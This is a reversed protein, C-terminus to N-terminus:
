KAESLDENREPFLMSILPPKANEQHLLIFCCPRTKIGSRAKDCVIIVKHFVMLENILVSKLCPESRHYDRDQSFNM